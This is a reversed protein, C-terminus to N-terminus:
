ENGYKDLLFSAWELDHPFDIDVTGFPHDVVFPLSKQNILEGKEILKISSIYMLGNEYYLQTLDQSRQGFSYNFPSFNNNEITGLKRSSKSISFASECHNVMMSMMMERLLSKPRLPNTPQLLVLYDFINLNKLCHQITDITTTNPLSVSDSRKLCEVNMAKSLDEVAQDNTCIYISDDQDCDMKAYDISHAILPKGGLLALSKQPFRESNARAPIFYALRIKEGNIIM